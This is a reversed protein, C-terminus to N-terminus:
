RDDEAHSAAERVRSLRVYFDPIRPGFGYFVLDGVRRFFVGRWLWRRDSRDSLQVSFIGEPAIRPKQRLEEICYQPGKLIPVDSVALERFVMIFTERVAPPLALFEPDCVHKRRIRFPM